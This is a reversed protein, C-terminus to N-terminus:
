YICIFNFFKLNFYLFKLIFLFFNSGCKTTVKGRTLYAQIVVKNVGLHPFIKERSYIMFHKKAIVREVEDLTLLWVCSDLRYPPKVRVM